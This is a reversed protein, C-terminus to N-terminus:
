VDDLKEAARTSECCSLWNIFLSAVLPLAYGHSINHIDIFERRGLLAHQKVRNICRFCTNVKLLAM